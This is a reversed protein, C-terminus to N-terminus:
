IHYTRLLSTIRPLSVIILFALYYYIPIGIAFTLIGLNASIELPLSSFYNTLLIFVVNFLNTARFLLEGVSPSLVYSVYSLMGSTINLSSLPVM